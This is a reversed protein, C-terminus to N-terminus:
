LNPRGNFLDETAEDRTGSYGLQDAKWRRIRLRAVQGHMLDDLRQRDEFHLLSTPIWNAAELPRAFSIADPRIIEVRGEVTVFDDSM